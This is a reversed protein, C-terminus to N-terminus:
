KNMSAVENKDRKIRELTADTIAMGAGILETMNDNEIDFLTEERTILLTNDLTLKRKKITRRM